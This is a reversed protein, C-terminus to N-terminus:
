RGVYVLMNVGILMFYGFLVDVVGLFSVFESVIVVFFFSCAATSCSRLM